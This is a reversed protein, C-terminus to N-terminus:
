HADEDADHAAHRRDLPPPPRGPQGTMTVQGPRPLREGAGAGSHRRVPPFGAVPHHLRGFPSLLAANQGDGHVQRAIFVAATFDNGGGLDVAEIM